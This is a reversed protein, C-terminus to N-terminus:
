SQVGDFLRQANQWAILDKEAQSIERNGEFLEKDNWKMLGGPDDHPYDTAYLFREAGLFGVAAALEPEETEITFYINRRLYDSPRLQNKARAEQKPVLSPPGAPKRVSTGADRSYDPLNREFRADLREALPKIWATGGETYVVKLKPLEDLLGSTILSVLTMHGDQPAFIDLGIRQFRRFNVARHGHQVAHLYLVMDLEHVKAFFPRLEPHEGLTEGYPHERVAYTHDAVVAKFGNDNAWQVEDVAAAVNQLPALAVGIFRGPYRNMIGAMSRNYSRSLSRALAPDLLTSWSWPTFQPLVVQLDVGLREMDRVRAELDVMGLLDTGSGGSARSFSPLPTTGPVLPPRAPFESHTYLGRSDFRLLPRLRKSGEDMYDFADRPIIHTDCDILM